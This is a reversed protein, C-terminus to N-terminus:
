DIAILETKCRTKIKFWLKIKATLHVKRAVVQKGLVFGSVNSCVAPDIRDSRPFRGARAAGSRYASHYGITAARTKAAGLRTQRARQLWSYRSNNRRLFAAGLPNRRDLWM